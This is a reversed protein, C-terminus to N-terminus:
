FDDERWHKRMWQKARYLRSEVSKLEIGQEASIQQYSKEELYYAIIVERYHEPLESIGQAVRRKRERGLVLKETGPPAGETRDPLQMVPETIPMEQRRSIKRRWDIAKNVAIRTMWTKLGKREYRPLSLHIQLFAEQAADEADKVNRLVGYVAQYIYNAYREVLRRFAEDDGALIRDVLQEDEIHRGEERIWLRLDNRFVRRIFCFFHGTM